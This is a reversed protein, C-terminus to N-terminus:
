RHCAVLCFIIEEGSFANSKAAAGNVQFIFRLEFNPLREMYDMLAVGQNLIVM